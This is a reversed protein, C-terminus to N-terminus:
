RRIEEHWAIQAKTLRGGPSKVEVLAIPEGAWVVDQMQEVTECVFVPVDPGPNIVLLDPVGKGSLHTVHAGM